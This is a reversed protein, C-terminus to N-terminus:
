ALLVGQEISLLMMPHQIGDLLPQLTKELLAIREASRKRKYLNAWQGVDGKLRAFRARHLRAANWLRDSLLAAAVLGHAQQGACPVTSTSNNDALGTSAHARSAKIKRVTKCFMYWVPLQDTWGPVM